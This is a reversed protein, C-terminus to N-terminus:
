RSPTGDVDRGLERMAAAFDAANAETCRLSGSQIDYMRNINALVKRLTTALERGEAGFGDALVCAESYCVRIEHLVALTEVGTRRPLSDYLSSVRDSLHKLRLMRANPRRGRVLIHAFAAASVVSMAVGFPWTDYGSAIMNATIAAIGVFAGGLIIVQARRGLRVSGGRKM